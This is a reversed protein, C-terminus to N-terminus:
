GPGAWLAVQGGGQERRSVGPDDQAPEAEAASENKTMTRIRSGAGEAFVEFKGQRYLGFADSAM